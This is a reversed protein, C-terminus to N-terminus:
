ADIEEPVAVSFAKGDPELIGSRSPGVGSKGSPDYDNESGSSQRVSKRRTRQRVVGPFISPQRHGANSPSESVINAKVGRDRADTTTRENSGILSHLEATSRGTMRRMSEATLVPSTRSAGGAGNSAKATLSGM